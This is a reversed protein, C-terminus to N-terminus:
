RGLLSNSLLWKRVTYMQAVTIVVYLMTELKGSHIVDHHNRKATSKHNMIRLMADTQKKKIKTVLKVLDQVHEKTADLDKERVQNEALKREEGEADYTNADARGEEPATVGNAIRAEDDILDREERTYVHGTSRDIGGLENGSRMEMEVVLAHFESSVCLRYWGGAKAAHTQEYPDVREMTITRFREDKAGDGGGPGGPGGSNRYAEKRESEIQARAAVSDEHEGAHTWDVKIARDVVGIRKDYRVGKDVDKVHRWSQTGARLEKGLTDIAVGMGAARGPDIEDIKRSLEDNGAIPGEFTISAKPLGNNLAEVVFVGFTVMDSQEFKKHLCETQKQGIKYQIRVHDGVSPPPPPRPRDGLVALRPPAVLCSIIAIAVLVSRLTPKM